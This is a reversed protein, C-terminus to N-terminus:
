NKKRYKRKGYKRQKRNEKNISNSQNIKSKDDTTNPKKNHNKLNVSLSSFINFDVCKKKCEQCTVSSKFLGYFLDVLISQNRRLYNNWEIKSKIEDPMEREEKKIYIKNKVRNLDEHLSDILFTVFEHTDQQNMGKFRDNCIGMVKKFKLIDLSKEPDLWLKNILVEYGYAVLGKYGLVNNTNIDKHPDGFLFYNRLELCNSLCQIATNMYCTNGINRLGKLGLISDETIVYKMNKNEQVFSDLLLDQCEEEHYISDKAQCIASCYFRKECTCFYSLITRTSCQPYYCRGIRYKINPNRYFITDPKQEIIINLEPYKNLDYIENINTSGLGFDQFTFNIENLQTAGMKEFNDTFQNPFINVLMENKLIELPILKFTFKYDVNPLTGEYFLSFDMFEEKDDEKEIEVLNLPFESINCNEDNTMPIDEGKEPNYVPLNNNMNYIDISKSNILNILDKFDDYNLDIWCKYNDRDLLKLNEYKKIIQNLYVLLESIKKFKNFYFYFTQIEEHILNKYEYINSINKKTPLIVCNIRIYKIIERKYTIKGPENEQKEALIKIEPGGGLNKHLFDWLSKNVALPKLPTYFAYKPKIISIKKDEENVFYANEFIRRDILYEENHLKGKLDNLIQLSEMSIFNRLERFWGRPVLYFEPCTFNSFEIKLEEDLEKFKKIFEFKNEETIGLSLDKNNMTNDEIDMNADNNVNKDENNNEINTNNINNTNSITQNNENNNINQNNTNNKLNNNPISGDSIPPKVENTQNKIENSNQNNNIINNKENNILSSNNINTKNIDNNQNINSNNNTELVMNAENINNNNGNKLDDNKKDNNNTNLNKDKIEKINNKEENINTLNNLIIKNHEKEKNVNNNNQNSNDTNTPKSEKELNNNLSSNINAANTDTTVIEKNEINLLEKNNKSENINAKTINNIAENINTENSNRIRQEKKENSIINENKNNLSTEKNEKIIKNNEMENNNEKTNNNKGIINGLIKNSNNTNNEVEKEKDKEVGKEKEIDMRNGKENEKEIEKNKEKEEEKDKAKEKDKEEEKDKAKENVKEEKDKEKEKEKEVEKENEIDMQNGKEKEKEKEKEKLNMNVKSDINNFKPEEKMKIDTENLDKNNNENNLNLKNDKKYVSNSIEKTMNQNNNSNDINTNNSDIKMNNELNNSSKVNIKEKMNNNANIDTKTNVNNKIVNELKSINTKISVNTTNLVSNSSSTNGNTNNANITPPIKTTTNNTNTINLNINSNNTNTNSNTSEENEKEQEKEKEKEKEISTEIQEMIGNLMDIDVIPGKKPTNKNKNKDQYTRKKRFNYDMKFQYPTEVKTAEQSKNSETKEDNIINSHSSM